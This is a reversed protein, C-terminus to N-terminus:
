AHGISRYVELVGRATRDWTFAAARELGRTRCQARVREDTVVAAVREALRAEDDPDEVLAADAVVEPLSGRNSCVVPTGCAMAELPPLGFGAYLPPYLLVDAAAYVGPLDAFAVRGLARVRARLGLRDVLVQQEPTLADGVKVLRADIGLHRVLQDLVAIVRPVNMYAQTHGVHLLTPGEFGLRRRLAERDGPPRFSPDIGQHVVAVREPPYDILELLDDRSAGSVAIVRAVRRIARLSYRLSLRTRLSVGPVKMVTADHFTVVTRDPPLSYALHGYGHDILHNIDAASARAYRQYRVYQDWYRSWPPALRADPLVCERVADDPGVLAALGRRLQDAYIQMSKRYPDPFARFLAITM